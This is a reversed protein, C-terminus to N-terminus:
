YIEGFLEYGKRLSKAKRRQFNFPIGMHRCTLAYHCLAIGMDIETKKYALSIPVKLTKKYLLVKDDNKELFWPQLNMGSPALHVARICADQPVNTIEEIAKRKFETEKRHVSANSIGFAITIIDNSNFNQVDRAEGLWVCGIDHADFWLILQEFLFGASEKEREEGNGSVVLYHPAKIKYLGRTQEVLRYNLKVNPYLQEFGMIATHIEELQKENM